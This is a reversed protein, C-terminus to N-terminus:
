KNPNRHTQANPQTGRLTLACSASSPAVESGFRCSGAGDDSGAGSSGAKCSRSSEAPTATAGLGGRVSSPYVRSSISSRTFRGFIPIPTEAPARAAPAAIPNATRPADIHGKVIGLSVVQGGLQTSGTPMAPKTRPAPPRTPIIAEPMKSRLRLRSRSLKLYACMPVGRRTWHSRACDRSTNQAVHTRKLHLRLTRRTTM